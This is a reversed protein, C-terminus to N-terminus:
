FPEVLDTAATKLFEEYAEYQEKLRGHAQEREESTTAEMYAHVIVAYKTKADMYEYFYQEKIHPELQLTGGTYNFVDALANFLPEFLQARQADNYQEATEQFTLIREIPKQIIALDGYISQRYDKILQQQQYFITGVVILLLLLAGIYIKRM